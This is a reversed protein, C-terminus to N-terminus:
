AWCTSSDANRARAGAGPRPVACGINNGRPALGDTPVAADRGAIRTRWSGAAASSSKAIRRSGPRPSAFLRPLQPHAPLHRRRRRYSATRRPACSKSRGIWTRSTPSRTGTASSLMALLRRLRRARDALNRSRLVWLECPGARGRSAPRCSTSCRAGRHGDISARPHAHLGRRAPMRVCGPSRQTVPQWTPSWYAGTEQDRLYVYRGPQDAPIANYRYRTVRRNRPDRDFSYGGGTNSIIGGYGGQAWTTSGRRPPTPGPSSTSAPPRM